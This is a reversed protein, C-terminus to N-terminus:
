SAPEGILLWIVASQLPLMAGDPPIFVIEAPVNGKLGSLDVPVRMQQEEMPHTVVSLSGRVAGQVRVQMEGFVSVPASDFIVRVSSEGGSQVLQLSEYPRWGGLSSAAQDARFLLYRPSADIDVALGGGQSPIVGIEGTMAVTTVDDVSLPLILTHPEGTTWLAMTVEAEKQFLLLYDDSRELPIRRMFRYGDLTTLLTHAARYAPKLTLDNHVTGFNQEIETHDVGDDRWDYWISLNVDYALNILWQRALYQAQQGESIGREVTTYGWEGSLVPLKWMPSYRHLFATLQVYLPGVEEPTELGYSHVTVADLKTFVGMEGLATWFPWDYGSTAPAVILATPDARRIAAATELLLAGYREVNAEPPWFRSLNPENWIEWVMGQGRYRRAAAAAFRAFAARAESSFPPFGHDYLPNGYDLIFLIRIGRRTMATVLADYEAFDYRGAEREVLNWFLDMRVWRFGGAALLNLEVPLAHTFHINVGFPQPIVREPLEGAPVPTSAVTPAVTPTLTRTLLPISITPIPTPTSTATPAPTPSPSLTPTLSVTFTPTFPVATM